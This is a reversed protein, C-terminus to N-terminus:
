KRNKSQNENPMYQFNFFLSRSSILNQKNVVKCNQRLMEVFLGNSEIRNSEIKTRAIRINLMFLM